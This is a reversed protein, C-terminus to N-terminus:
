ELTMFICCVTIQQSYFHLNTREFINLDKDSTTIAREYSRSWFHTGGWGIQYFATTLADGLKAPSANTQCFHCFHERKQFMLLNWPGKKKGLFYYFTHKYITWKKSLNLDKPIWPYILRKLKLTQRFQWRLFWNSFFLHALSPSTHGPGFTNRAHPATPMPPSTVTAPLAVQSPHGGWGLCRGEPELWSMKM